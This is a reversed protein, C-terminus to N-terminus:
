PSIATDRSARYKREVASQAKSREKDEEADVFFKVAMSFISPSKVFYLTQKTSQPTESYFWLRM